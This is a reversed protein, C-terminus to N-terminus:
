SKAKCPPRHQRDRKGEGCSRCKGKYEGSKWPDFAHHFGGCEDCREEDWADTPRKDRLAATGNEDLRRLVEAIAGEILDDPLRVRMQDHALNVTANAGDRLEAIVEDRTLVDGSYADCVGSWWRCQAGNRHLIM